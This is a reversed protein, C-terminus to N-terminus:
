TQIEEESGWLFGQLLVHKGSASVFHVNFIRLPDEGSREKLVLRPELAKCPIQLSTGSGKNLAAFDDKDTM